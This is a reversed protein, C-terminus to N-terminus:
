SGARGKVWARMEEVTMEVSNDIGRLKDLEIATLALGTELVDLVAPSVLVGLTKGDEDTLSLKQAGRVFEAAKGPELAPSAGLEEMRDFEEQAQSVYRAMARLQPGAGALPVTDIPGQREYGEIEAPDM